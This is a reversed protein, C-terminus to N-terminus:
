SNFELLLKHNSSWYCSLLTYRHFPSRCTHSLSLTNLVKQPRNWHGLYYRCHQTSYMNKRAWKSWYLYSQLARSVRRWCGQYVNCSQLLYGAETCTHSSINCVPHHNDWHSSWHPLFLSQAVLLPQVLGCTSCHLSM